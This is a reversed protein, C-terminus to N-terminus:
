RGTPRGGPGDRLVVSFVWMAVFLSKANPPSLTITPTPTARPAHAPLLLGSPGGPELPPPDPPPLPPLLPPLPPLLPLLLPPLLLPEPLPLLPEPLLLLPEFALLPEPLPDDLLLPLPPPLQV